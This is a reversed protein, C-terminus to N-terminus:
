FLQTANSYCYDDRRPNLGHVFLQHRKASKSFIDFSALQAAESYSHKYDFCNSFWIYKKNTDQKVLGCLMPNNVIDFEQYQINSQKITFFSEMTDSPSANRWNIDFKERNTLRDFDVVQYDSYCYVCDLDNVIQWLQQKSCDWQEVLTRKFALALPNFDYYVINSSQKVIQTDMFGAPLLYYLDFNLHNQFQKETNFIYVPSNM